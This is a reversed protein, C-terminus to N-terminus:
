GETSAPSGESSRIQTTSTSSSFTSVSGTTLWSTVMSVADRYADGVLVGKQWLGYRGALRVNPPLMLHVPLNHRLPKEVQTMVQRLPNIGHRRIDNFIEDVNTQPDQEEKAPWETWEQGFIRSQRYWKDDVFGNYMIINMLRDPEGFPPIVMKPYCYVLQTDFGDRSGILAPLPMTSFVLGVNKAIRELRGMGIPAVIMNPLFYEHLKQYVSSMRWANEHDAFKNWSTDGVTVKDGYIKRAYGEATGLRRYQIVSAAYEATLGPIAEHLYQAGFQGSPTLTNTFIEVKMGLQEAAWACLLGAPGSGIVACKLHQETKNWDWPQSTTM